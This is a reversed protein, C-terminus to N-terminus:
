PDLLGLEVLTPGLERLLRQAEHLQHMEEPTSPGGGPSYWRPRVQDQPNRVVTTIMREGYNGEQLAAVKQLRNFSHPRRDNTMSGDPQLYGPTIFPALLRQVQASRCAAVRRERDLRAEALVDAQQKRVTLMKVREEAARQELEAAMAAEQDKTKLLQLQRDNERQAFEAALRAREAVFKEHETHRANAEATAAEQAARARREDFTAALTLPATQGAAQAAQLLDAVRRRETEIAKRESTLAAYEDRIRRLLETSPEYMLERRAYADEIPALLQAVTTRRQSVAAVAPVPRVFSEALLDLWEPHAALSKGADNALLPLTQGHWANVEAAYQDSATELDRCLALLRRWRDQALSEQEASRLRAERAAAGIPGAYQEVLPRGLDYAVYVALAGFAVASCARRLARWASPRRRRPRAGRDYDDDWSRDDSWDDRPDFRRELATGLQEPIDDLM